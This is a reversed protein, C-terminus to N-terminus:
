YDKLAKEIVGKRREEDKSSSYIGFALLGLFVALFILIATWSLPEDVYTCTTTGNVTTCNQNSHYTSGHYYSRSRSSRSSSSSSSRSGGRQTSGTVILLAILCLLLLSHRQNAATMLYTISIVRGEITLICIMCIEAFSM